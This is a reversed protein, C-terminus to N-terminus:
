KSGELLEPNDHVNGVVEMMEHQDMTVCSSWGEGYFGDMRDYKTEFTQKDVSPAINRDCLVIDGEFIRKGNKDTLGTFQGVTEPKVPFARGDFTGTECCLYPWDLPHVSTEDAPLISTYSRGDLLDAHILSGEIWGGNYTRKGRFLIERM